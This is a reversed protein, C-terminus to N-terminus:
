RDVADVSTSVYRATEPDSEVGREIPEFLPGLSDFLAREFSRFSRKKFPELTM